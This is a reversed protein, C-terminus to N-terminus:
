TPIVTNTPGCLEIDPSPVVSKTVYYPRPHGLLYSTLNRAWYPLM